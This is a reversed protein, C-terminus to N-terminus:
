NRGYRCVKLSLMCLGFVLMNVNVFMATSSTVRMTHSSISLPTISRINSACHEDNINADTLDEIPFCSGFEIDITGVDIISDIIQNEIRSSGIPYIRFSCGRLENDLIDVASYWFEEQPAYDRGHYCRVEDAEWGDPALLDFEYHGIPFVVPSYAGEGEIIIVTDSFIIENSIEDYGTIILQSAIDAPQYFEFNVTGTGDPITEKLTFVCHFDDGADLVFPTNRDLEIYNPYPQNRDDCYLMEDFVWNLIDTDIVNITYSDQPIDVVLIDIIQFGDDGSGATYVSTLNESIVQEVRNTGTIIFTYEPPPSIQDTPLGTPLFRYLTQPTPEWYTPIWTDLLTEFRLSISLTALNDTDTEQAAAANSVALLILAFTLAFFACNKQWNQITIM